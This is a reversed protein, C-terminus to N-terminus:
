MKEPVEIGLTDLASTLARRAMDAVVILVARKLDDTEAIIKHNHYFLNFVKALTFTYKALIAPENNGPGDSAGKAVRIAEDDREAQTRRQRRRDSLYVLAPIGLFIVLVAVVANM